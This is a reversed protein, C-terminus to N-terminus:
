ALKWLCCALGVLNSTQKIMEQYCSGSVKLMCFGHLKLKVNSKGRDKCDLIRAFM